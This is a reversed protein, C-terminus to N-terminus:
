KVIKAVALKHVIKGITPVFRKEKSSMVLLQLVEDFIRAGNPLQFKFKLATVIELELEHMFQNLAHKYAQETSVDSSLQIEPNARICMLVRMRKIDSKLGPLIDDTQNQM